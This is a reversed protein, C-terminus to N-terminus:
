LCDCTHASEDAMSRTAAGFCSWDSPVRSLASMRAARLEDSSRAQAATAIEVGSAPQSNIIDDLAAEATQLGLNLRAVENARVRECWLLTKKKETALAAAATALLVSEGSDSASGAAMAATVAASAPHYHPNSNSAPLLGGGGGLGSNFAQLDFQNQQHQQYVNM